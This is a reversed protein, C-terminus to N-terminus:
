HKLLVLYYISLAFRKNVFQFIFSFAIMLNLLFRTQSLKLCFYQGYPGYLWWLVQGLQLMMRDGQKVCSGLQLLVIQPKVFNSDCRRYTVATLFNFTYNPLEM